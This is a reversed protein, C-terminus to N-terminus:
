LIKYFSVRERRCQPCRRVRLAEIGGPEIVQETNMRPDMLCRRCYIHSCRGMYGDEVVEYCIPCQPGSAPLQQEIIGSTGSTSAVENVFETTATSMSLMFQSAATGVKQIYTTAASVPGSQSAPPPPTALDIMEYVQTNSAQPPSPSALPPPPPPSALPPPPPPSPQIELQRLARLRRALPGLRGGGKGLAKSFKGRAVATWDVVQDFELPELYSQYFGPDALPRRSRSM